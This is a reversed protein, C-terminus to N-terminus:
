LGVDVDTVIYIYIYIPYSKCMILVVYEWSRKYILIIKPHVFPPPLVSMSLLRYLYNVLSHYAPPAKQEGYLSYHLHSVVHLM